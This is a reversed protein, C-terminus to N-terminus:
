PLGGRLICCCCRCYCGCCVFCCCCFFAFVCLRESLLLARRLVGRPLALPLCLLPLPLMCSCPCRCLCLCLCRCVCRCRCRCRCRCLCLCLCLCLNRGRDRGSVCVWPVGLLVASFRGATITDAVGLAFPYSRASIVLRLPFFRFRLLVCAASSCLSFRLFPFSHVFFVLLCFLSALASISILPRSPSPLGPLSACPCLSSAFVCSFVRLQRPSARIRFRFLVFTPSVRVRFLTFSSFLSAFLSLSAFFVIVIPLLCCCCLFM